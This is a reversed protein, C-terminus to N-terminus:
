QGFLAGFIADLFSEIAGRSAPKEHVRLSTEQGPTPTAGGGSQTPETSPVVSLVPLPSGPTASVPETPSPSGSPLNSSTPRGGASSSGPQGATPGAGGTAVATPKSTP